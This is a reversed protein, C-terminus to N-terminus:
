FAESRTTSSLLPLDLKHRRTFYGQVASVHYNLIHAGRVLNPITNPLLLHNDFPLTVSLVKIAIIFISFACEGSQMVSELVIAILGQRSKLSTRVVSFYCATLAELFACEHCVLAYM